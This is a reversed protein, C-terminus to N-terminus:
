QKLIDSREYKRALPLMKSNSNVLHGYELSLVLVKVLIKYKGNRADYNLKWVKLWWICVIKM